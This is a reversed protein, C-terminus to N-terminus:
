NMTMKEEISGMGTDRPINYNIGQGKKHPWVDM